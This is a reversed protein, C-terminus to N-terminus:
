PILGLERLEAREEESLSLLPDAVDAPLERSRPPTPASTLELLEPRYEIFTMEFWLSDTAVSDRMNVCDILVPSDLGEAEAADGLVRHQRPIPGDETM